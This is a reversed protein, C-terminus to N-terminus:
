KSGEACNFEDPCNEFEDQTRTIKVQVQWTPSNGDEDVLNDCPLELIAVMSSDFYPNDVSEQIHEEIVKHLKDKNTYTM